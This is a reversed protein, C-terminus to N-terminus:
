DQEATTPAPLAVDGLEVYSPAAVRGMEVGSSLPEAVVGM